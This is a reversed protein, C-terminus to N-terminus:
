PEVHCEWCTPDVDAYDHCRVCFTQRDDHCEMCTGTLSITYRVGDSAVYEVRGERVLDDRWADLLSPHNARMWEASEVCAAEDPYELEPAAPDAGTIADYWLPFLAVAVFVGLGTYIWRNRM